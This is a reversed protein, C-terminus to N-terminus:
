QLEGSAVLRAAELLNKCAHTASPDEKPDATGDKGVIIRVPLGAKLGAATDSKSDGIILSSALDIGLDEAAKILMGPEPKRCGCACRWEPLADKPHHPCYYVGAIPAGAEEFRAKMWDMLRFFDDERYYGRGIGSQNTVIVLRYGAEHLIRAAELAGDIFDFDEIRSVYAHDINITGDRDLFAARVM